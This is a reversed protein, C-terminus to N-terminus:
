GCNYSLYANDGGPEGIGVATGTNLNIATPRWAIEEFMTGEDLNQEQHLGFKFWNAQSTSLAYVLKDQSTKECICKM